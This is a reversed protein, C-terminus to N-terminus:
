RGKKELLDYYLNTIKEAYKKGSYKSIVNERGNRAIKKTKEPNDILALLARAISGPNQSEVLIGNVGDQIIETIGGVNSAVVPLGSYMAEIISIGFPEWLAPHVFIDMAQMLEPVSKTKGMFITNKSIGLENALLLLQNKMDGEGVLLIKIKIDERIKKIERVAYLLYKQGKIRTLRGVSGILVEDPLIGLQKRKLERTNPSLKFKKEYFANHIVCRKRERKKFANMQSNSIYIVMDTLYDLLVNLKLHGRYNNPYGKENSGRYDHRTKCIVPVHCLLGILRGMLDAKQLHSHIIDIKDNKIIKMLNIIKRYSYRFRPQKLCFVKIGEQKIQDAVPGEESLCCVAMNIRNRDVHAGITLLLIEAGGLPLKGIVHLVNITKM